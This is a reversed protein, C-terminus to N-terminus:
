IPKKHNEAGAALIRCLWRESHDCFGNPWLPLRGDRDPLLLRGEFRFQVESNSVFGESILARTALIFNQTSVSIADQDGKLFDRARDEAAADAIAEGQSFFEITKM